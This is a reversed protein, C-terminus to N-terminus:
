FFLMASFPSEDRLYSQDEEETCISTSADREKSWLPSDLPKLEGRSPWPSTPLAFVSICLGELVDGAAVMMMGTVHHRGPQAAWLVITWPPSLTWDKLKGVEGNSAM